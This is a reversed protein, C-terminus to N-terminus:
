ERESESEFESECNSEVDGTSEGECEERESHRARVTDWDTECESLYRLKSRVALCCNRIHPINVRLCWCQCNM